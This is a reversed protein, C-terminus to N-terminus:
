LACVRRVLIFRTAYDNDDVSNALCERQANTDDAAAAAVVVGVVVADLQAM